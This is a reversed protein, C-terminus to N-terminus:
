EFEIVVPTKAEFLLWYPIDTSEHMKKFLVASIPRTTAPDSALPRFNITVFQMKEPANGDGVKTLELL